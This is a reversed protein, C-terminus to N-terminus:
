NLSIILYLGVLAMSVDIILRLYFYSKSMWTNWYKLYFYITISLFIPLLILILLSYTYAIYFTLFTFIRVYNGIAREDRIFFKRNMKPFIIKLFFQVLIASFSMIFVFVILVVITKKDFPLNSYKDVNIKSILAIISIHIIQDFIFLLLAMVSNKVKIKSKYYDILFHTFGNILVLLWLNFGFPFSLILMVSTVIISHLLIWKTDKSKNEAIKNTQFTFDGLLHGLILYYFDM